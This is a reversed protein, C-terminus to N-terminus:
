GARMPVGAAFSDGVKDQPFLLKTQRFGEVLERAIELWEEVAEISDADVAPDLQALRSFGAQVKALM